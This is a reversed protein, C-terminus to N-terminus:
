PSRVSSLGYVSKSATLLHCPPRLLMERKSLHAHQSADGGKFRPAIM